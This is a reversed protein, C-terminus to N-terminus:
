IELKYIYDKEITGLCYGAHVAVPMPLDKIIIQQSAEVWANQMAHAITSAIPEYIAPDNDCEITYDDHVFNDMQGESLGDDKLMYHMSLKAVEAGFGQVEINLHDTMLKAKYRRGFPTVGCKGSRWDEIRSEQWRKLGTWLRLWKKKLDRLEHEPLLIGAEKILISGLMKWGGGYLLNFNCTKAIQRQIPTFDKGFLMMATYAHLDEGDRFLSEMATDNAIACAGRLELQSFDAHLLIRGSEPAVGFCDKTKRPIQELNQDKCTFRGSRASPAFKGYIRGDDTTFKTLFSNQKILKRVINVNKARENGHITLTALGLGDSMDSDIYPRVQQYSNVNIPLNIEKVKAANAEFKADVKDQLVPMGNCQFDLAYNLALMDLQYSTTDKQGKCAEWLEPMHFVDLAAYLKQEESLVPISWDSKQLVKKDLGAQEYPDYGLLYTLVKDLSMFLESYYQLRALYMSDDINSPLWKTGLRTQITSIEYSQNHVFFHKDQLFIALEFPNPYEIMLVEKWGKQYFQALRIKGYFKITEIDFCLPEEPNYPLDVVSDVFRYM